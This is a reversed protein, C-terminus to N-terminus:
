IHFNPHILRYIEGMATTLEVFQTLKSNPLASTGINKMLKLKRKIDYDEIQNLDFKKAEKGLKKELKSYAERAKQSPVKTADTINSEYNWLALIMERVATQM